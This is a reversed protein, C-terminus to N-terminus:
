NSYEQNRNRAVELYNTLSQNSHETSQVESKLQNKRETLKQVQENLQLVQQQYDKIITM